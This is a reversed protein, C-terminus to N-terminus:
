ADALAALKKRDTIEVTGRTLKVLGENQFYHLMRTIVERATGLHNGITEHTLKLQETGQLAAEELLFAALRKDLSKWLIQEILWMVDSFRNAMIENTYNSLPASAELLQKYVRAPIIWFSTDQEAEIILDFQIGPMICSASFLCIDMDSLRYVTIERGDESLIYARLLGTQILLLGICDMSGNYIVTGKKVSRFTVTDKLTNQQAPTLKNWMPFYDAFNMTLAGKM